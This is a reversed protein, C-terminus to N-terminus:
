RSTPPKVLTPAGPPRQKPPGPKKPEPPPPLIWKFGSQAEILGMTARAKPPATAELAARLFQTADAASIKQSEGKLFQDAVEWMKSDSVVVKELRPDKKRLMDLLTPSGRQPPYFFEVLTHPEGKEPPWFQIYRPPPVRTDWYDARKEQQKIAYTLQWVEPGYGQLYDAIILEAIPEGEPLRIKGHLGEALGGLRELLGQGISEIDTALSGEGPPQLRPVGSATQARIRPLEADLRAFEELTSPSVWEDAGLIVGIRMDSLLVPTPVRTQAEFPDEVTAILIADKVVAIVVRGAALNAVIEEQPTDSVEQAALRPALAFLLAGSLLSRRFRRTVLLIHPPV